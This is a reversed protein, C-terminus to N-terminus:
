LRAGPHNEELVAAQAEWRDLVLGLYRCFSGVSREAAPTIRVPSMYEIKLMGMVNGSRGSCIPAAFIGQEGLIIRDQKRLASLMCHNRVISAHLPDGPFFHTRGAFRSEWGIQLRATLSDERLEFLSFTEAGVVIRAADAVARQFRSHDLDLAHLVALADILEQGQDPRIAALEAELRCVRENTQILHRSLSEREDHLEEIIARLGQTEGIQRQRFEGIIIATGLWLVPEYMTVTTYVLYEQGSEPTPWGLLWQTLVSAAVAAIGDTTGYQLSVLVVPVWFPHPRMSALTGPELLTLQLLAAVGLFAVLEIIANWHMKFHFRSGEAFSVHFPMDRKASM